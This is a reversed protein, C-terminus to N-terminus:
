YVKIFRKKDGQVFVHTGPSLAINPIVGNETKGEWVLQGFINYIQASTLLSSKAIKNHSSAVGSIQVTDHVVLYITDYHVTPHFNYSWSLVNDFIEAGSEGWVMPNSTYNSLPNTWSTLSFPGKLVTVTDKFILFSGVSLVLAEHHKTVRLSDIRVDLVVYKEPYLPSQAVDPGNNTVITTIEITDVLWNKTSLLRVSSPSYLNSVAFATHFTFFLLYAATRKLM